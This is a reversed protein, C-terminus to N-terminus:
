KVIPNSAVFPARIRLSRGLATPIPPFPAARRIASACNRDFEDVGSRRAPPWHVEAHGDAFVTFEIIVTGQELNLLASKPFADSWLPDIKAHIQRFYSVLRPDLSFYDYVEGDELGLARARFGDDAAGGSGPDRAGRSGGTGDSLLGGATSAHVISRVTTAVEQEADADDRPVARESAPVAISARVVSPRAVGVPVSTRHDVGARGERLGAGPADRGSGDRDGGPRSQEALTDLAPESGLEGGHANPLPSELAGRSPLAAANARRERVRGVGTAVLTLEAPHTTSRRNEWSARRRSARLRQIQDRDLRSLLDPSLRMHENEEALNLAREKVSSEGGRGSHETDPHAVADGSPPPPPAGVSDAQREELSLGEGVVPLDLVIPTSAAPLVPRDQDIPADARVSHYAAWGLGFTLAGHVAVSAALTVGHRKVLAL